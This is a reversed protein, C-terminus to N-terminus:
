LVHRKLIAFDLLVYPTSSPTTGLDLLDYLNFNVTIKSDSFINDRDIFANNLIPIFGNFTDNYSSMHRIYIDCSDLGSEGGLTSKLKDIVEPTLFESLKFAASYSAWKMGFSTTDTGIQIAQKAVNFVTMINNGLLLEKNNVILSNINQGETVEEPDYEGIIVGGSPTTMAELQWEEMHDAVFDSVNNSVQEIANDISEVKANIYNKYNNFLALIENRYQANQQAMNEAVEDFHAQIEAIRDNFTAYQELLWDLNLDDANVHPFSNFNAM